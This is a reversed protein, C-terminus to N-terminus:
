QKRLRERKKLFIHLLLIVLLTIAIISFYYLRNGALLEGRGIWAMFALYVLM